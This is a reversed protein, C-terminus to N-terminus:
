LRARRGLLHLPWSLRPSGVGLSQGQSRLSPFASERWVQASM